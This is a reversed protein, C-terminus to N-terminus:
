LNANATLTIIDSYNDAPPTTNAATAKVVLKVVSQTPNPSSKSALTHPTSSSIEGVTNSGYFNYYTNDIEVGSLTATANAGYAETGTALTSTGSVTPILYASTTSYLGNQAGKIEIDWGNLANTGLSLVIDTSSGINLTGDSQVLYPLLSVQTPTASFDIWAEVVATVGIDSTTAAQAMGGKFVTGGGLFNTVLVVALSFITVIIEKRFKLVFEELSM